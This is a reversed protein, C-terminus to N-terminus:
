SYLSMNIYMKKKVSSEILSTFTPAAVHIINWLAAAKIGATVKTANPSHFTHLILM